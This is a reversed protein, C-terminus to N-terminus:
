VVTRERWAYVSLVPAILHFLFARRSNKKRRYSCRHLSPHMESTLKSASVAEKRDRTPLSNFHTSTKPAV